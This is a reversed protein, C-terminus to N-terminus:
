EQLGFFFLILVQGLCTQQFINKLINKKKILWGLTSMPWLASSFWTDLVDTEQRLPKNANYYDYAIKNAEEENIASFVKGDPGYWVPIRHGWWIQRSICWQEIGNMWLFFTKLWSTPYFKTEKKKVLAVVKEAMPKVNLFWQDTIYPEIISGSRDGLPISHTIKESKLFNGNKKLDEIIIKRAKIRDIGQYKKPVNENLKGYKDFIVKFKLKNKKAVMYDNFDHAPTIKLVGSGKDKDVYNDSIISINQNTLPLKVKKGIFKKYRGDNPNMALCQDGFLTEPRTTAVELYDSSNEFFYKIYTFEGEKEVQEVELDSVATQLNIDWNVLRKDKYILGEKFLEVFSFNVANSM